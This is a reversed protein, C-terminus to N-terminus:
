PGPLNTFFPFGRPVPQPGGRSPRPSVAPTPQPRPPGYRGYLWSRRPSQFGQEPRGSLAGRMAMEWLPGPLCGGCIFGYYRGGIRLGQLPQNRSPNGVWVATSLQPTYGVFWIAVKGDTTGTKGAAPRGLSLRSGTGGPQMVGRLLYTVVDAVEPRIVQKCQAQPVPLSEGKRDKISLIAVPKCYTGRAAFAAYASSMALPSLTNPGLTFSLVSDLDEGSAQKTIGLRKAMTVVDCLGVRNQLQLFYTNVSEATARRMDYQGNERPSENYPAYGSDYVNKGQCDKTRPLGQTLHYPAFIPYYVGFREEIAAAATFAKMTSGVQFGRSGGYRYDTAYNVVTRGKGKGYLRNVGIAKIRGTGPEVMALASAVKNKPEVYERLAKDASRQAKRDLTTRITLGGRSLLDQRSEPTRGFIPDNQIVRVIYDCFFPTPSRMCGNRTVSVKLGLPSAAAQRQQAPTIYGVQAMRGLVINRRRMAGQPNRTPDYASPSRVVGALLAAQALTLKAATTSFYRRAAAETGYAGSGFYSINLYNELIQDKSLRKEIELAYKLEQLKRKITPARAAAIKKRDGDALQILLNKVYQQTLTSGGQRPGGSTNSIVARATGRIDIGPHEYFRADEIALIAQRMIPAVTSLPISLRNEDYFTAIRSGDAALVVSRQALERTELDGPLSQFDEAAAKATLAAGGVLPLTLGALLAGAVLCIGLFVTIQYTRGALSRSRMRM